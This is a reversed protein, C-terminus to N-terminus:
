AIYTKKKRGSLYSEMVCHTLDGSTCYFAVGKTLRTLHEVFNIWDMYFYDEILAFTSFRVGARALLMAESLTAITTEEDPPYILHVFPGAVHATPQGDTVIFVQQNLGGRRALLRRATMLGMQLNTFHPPADSLEQLPVTMRIEPDFLTVPKPVVLPLRHEPIIEAGTAFGVVDVTDLPFRQRILAYVAMACKKAQPFRDWRAMSGSMDLLIVTSCTAKSETQHVEFDSEDLRFPPRLGRSGPPPERRTREVSPGSIRAAVPLFRHEVGSDAASRMMANRLTATVDFDSVSDGFRYKRTGECREGGVGTQPTEHGEVSDPRLDRFVDMLARRQISEIARPTLRFKVGVRELLGEEIWKEIIARQEPDEAARRLAELAEEGYDMVYELFADFQSLHEQTAFETGDWQQYIFRM